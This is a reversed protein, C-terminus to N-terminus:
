PKTVQVLTLDYRETLAEPLREPWDVTGFRPYDPHPRDSGIIWGPPVQAYGLPRYGLGYTYRTGTYTDDYFTPMPFAM